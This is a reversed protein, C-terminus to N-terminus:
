TPKEIKVAEHKLRVIGLTKIGALKLYRIEMKSLRDQMSKM